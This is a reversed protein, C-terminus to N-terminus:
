ALVKGPKYGYEGIEFLGGSFEFGDNPEWLMFGEGYYLMNWAHYGLPTPGTVVMLTNLRYIERCKVWAKTAYWDCDSIDAKYLDKSFVLDWLIKGWSELDTYFYETQWLGFPIELGLATLLNQMENIGISYRKFSPIHKIPNQVKIRSM